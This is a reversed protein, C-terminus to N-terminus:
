RLANFVENLATEVALIYSPETRAIGRMVDEKLSSGTLLRTLEQINQESPIGNDILNASLHIIRERLDNSTLQYFPDTEKFENGLFQKIAESQKSLQSEKFEMRMEDFAEPSAGPTSNELRDHIPDSTPLKILTAALDTILSLENKPLLSFKVGQSLILNISSVPDHQDAESGITKLNELHGRADLAPQWKQKVASHMMDITLNIAASSGTGRADNLRDHLGLAVNSPMKSTIYAQWQVNENQLSPAATRRESKPLGSIITSTKNISEAIERLQRLQPLFRQTADPVFRANEAQNSILRTTEARQKALPIFDKSPGTNRENEYSTKFQSYKEKTAPDSSAHGELSVHKVFRPITDRTLLNTIESKAEEFAAKLDQISVSDDAIKASINERIHAKINVVNDSNPHIFKNFVQVLQEQSMDPQIILAELFMPNEPSYEAASFTEFVGRIESNRPMRMILDPSITGAGHTELWEKPTVLKSREGIADSLQNIAQQKKSQDADNPKTDNVDQLKRFLTGLENKAQEKKAANITATMGQKVTMKINAFSSFATRRNISKSVPIEVDFMRSGAIQAAQPAQSRGFIRSLFSRKPPPTQREVSRGSDSRGKKTSLAGEISLDRRPAIGGIPSSNTPM